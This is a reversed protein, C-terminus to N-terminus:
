LFANLLGCFIWRCVFYYPKHTSGHINLLKYRTYFSKENIISSPIMYIHNYFWINRRNKSHTLFYTLADMLKIKHGKKRRWLQSGEWERIGIQISCASLLFNRENRRRWRRWGSTFDSAKSRKKHWTHTSPKEHDHLYFYTLFFVKKQDEGQLSKIQGIFHPYCALTPSLFAFDTFKISLLLFNVFFCATYRKLTSM